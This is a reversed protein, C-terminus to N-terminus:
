AAITVNTSNKQWVTLTLIHLQMQALPIEDSVKGLVLSSRM